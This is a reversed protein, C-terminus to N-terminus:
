STVGQKEEVPSFFDLDINGELRETAVNNLLKLSALLCTKNMDQMQLLCDILGNIDVEDCAKEYKPMLKMWLGDRSNVINQM